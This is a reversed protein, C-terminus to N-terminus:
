CIGGAISAGNKLDFGFYCTYGEQRSFTCWLEKKRRSRDGPETLCSVKDDPGMSEFMEKAAQGTVIFSVKRDNATPASQNGLEGSYVSYEGKFPVYRDGSQALALAATLFACAFLTAQKM